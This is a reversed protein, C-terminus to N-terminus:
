FYLIRLGFYRLRQNPRIPRIPRGHLPDSLMKQFTPRPKGLGVFQLDDRVWEVVGDRMLALETMTQPQITRFLGEWLARAAPHMQEYLTTPPLAAAQADLWRYAARWQAVDPLQGRCRGAIRQAEDSLLDTLILPEHDLWHTFTQRPNRALREGYWRNPHNAQTAVWYAEFQVKTFPFLSWYINQEPLHILPYQWQDLQWQFTAGSGTLSYTQHAAAHRRASAPPDALSQRAQAVTELTFEPHFTDRPCLSRSGARILLWQGIRPNSLWDALDFIPGDAIITVSAYRVRQNALIPALLRPREPRSGSLLKEFPMLQNCGLLAVENDLETTFEVEIETLMEASLMGDLVLLHQNNLHLM